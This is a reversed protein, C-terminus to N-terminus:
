PEEFTQLDVRALRSEFARETEGSGRPLPAAGGMGGVFSIREAPIGAEQAIALAADARRRSLELNADDPGETGSHGVIRILRRPNGAAEHVFAALREREGPALIVGRTFRFSASRPAGRSGIVGAVALAAVGAAALAAGIM